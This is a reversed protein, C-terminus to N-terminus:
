EERFIMISLEGKMENNGLSSSATPQPHIPIGHSLRATRQRRHTGEPKAFPPAGEEILARKKSRSPSVFFPTGFHPGAFAGRESDRKEHSLKM